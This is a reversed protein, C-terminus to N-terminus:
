DIRGGGIMFLEFCLINEMEKPIKQLLKQSEFISHRRLRTSTAKTTIQTFSHYYFHNLELVNRLSNAEIRSFWFFFFLQNLVFKILGIWISM